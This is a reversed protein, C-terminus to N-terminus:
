ITFFEDEIRKKMSYLFSQYDVLRQCDPNRHDAAPRIKALEDEIDGLLRTTSNNLEKALSLEKIGKKEM